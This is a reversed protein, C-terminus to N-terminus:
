TRGADVPRLELTRGAPSDVEAVAVLGSRRLSDRVLADVTAPDAADGDITVGHPVTLTASGEARATGAAAPVAAIVDELRPGAPEAAAGDESAPPERDALVRKRVYLWVPLLVVAAIVFSRVLVDAQIEALLVAPATVDSADM